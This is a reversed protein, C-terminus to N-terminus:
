RTHTNGLLTNGTPAPAPELVAAVEKPAPAPVPEPLAQLEVLTNELESLEDDSLESLPGIRLVDERPLLSAIIKFYVDPHEVYTLHISKYGEAEWHALVETLVKRQLLNRSGAPRGKPNAIQGKGFQYKALHDNAM